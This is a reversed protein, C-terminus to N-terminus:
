FPFDKSETRATRMITEAKNVLEPHETALNVQEGLDTKLNYLEIPGNCMKVIKWEGLRVAQMPINNKKFEWYLYSHQQQDSEGMLTPLYSIGDSKVPVELGVIDAATPLFDWFASIHNSVTGKKIKGPWRAIFPVRIGGEYVSGKQGRMCPNSNFFKADAGKGQAAGNDSTFIVITNDDIGLEQLLALIKGIDRDMRTIMAAYAARPTAQPGYNGRFPVDPSDPLDKHYGTGEFPIEPFKGRYENMSDDPVAFELHPITYALYLFFPRFHNQKIFEIAERTFLDHVYQGTQKIPDNGKLVVKEINKWIYRPYYSHAKRQCLHGYWFDFGKRNPEGTSVPGGLGWKGVAGTIYGAKKLIEAVTVSETTLALQGEPRVEYNGRIFAHGTHLGTMLTCRSPACVPSGAYHDTFRIGETAMKDLFPTKIKEQGYCGLDGYGLDDALIFIINPKRIENKSCFLFRPIALTTAGLGIIRLFNRRSNNYIAM